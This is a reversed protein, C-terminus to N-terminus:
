CECSVVDLAKTLKSLETDSLWRYRKEEHYKEIGRVLNDSRWGWRISLTFMKSLLSLVRNARYPTKRLSNHLSQINEYRVDAAKLDGLKPLIHRTLM